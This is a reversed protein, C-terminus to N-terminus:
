SHATLMTIMFAASYDNKLEVLSDQRANWRSSDQLGCREDFKSVWYLVRKAARGHTAKKNKQLTVRQRESIDCSVDDISVKGHTNGSQTYRESGAVNEDAYNLFRSTENPM